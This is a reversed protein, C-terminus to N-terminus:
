GLMTISIGFIQLGGRIWEFAQPKTLAAACALAVWVPFATSLLEVLALINTALGDSAAEAHESSPVEGAANSSSFVAFTKKQHHHYKPNALFSSSCRTCPAPQSLHSSRFPPPYSIAATRASVPISPSPVIRLMSIM